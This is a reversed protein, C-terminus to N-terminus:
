GYIEKPKTLEIHEDLWAIRPAKEGRSWSWDMDKNPRNNNIYELIYSFENGSYFGLFRLDNALNCLGTIFCKDFNEGMVVLLEHISRPQNTNMIEEEKDM